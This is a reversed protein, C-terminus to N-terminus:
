SIYHLEKLKDFVAQAIEQRGDNTMLAATVKSNLGLYHDGFAQTMAQDYAEHDTVSAPYSGLILYDKSGNQYTALVAKEQEILENLDDGWGGHYGMTLVPLYSQDDRTKMYQSLDARVITEYNNTLGNQKHKTIYNQVTQSDIGALSMQSLTGAMDWTDDEVTMGSGAAQLLAQVKAPYGNAKDADDEMYSDGRFSIGTYTVTKNQKDDSSAASVSTVTASVDSSPDSAASVAESTSSDSSVSDSAVSTEYTNNGDQMIAQNAKTELEKTMRNQRIHNFALLVGLLVALIVCCFIVLFRNSGNNNM